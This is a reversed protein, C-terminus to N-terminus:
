VSAGLVEEAIGHLLQFLELYRGRFQSNKRWLFSFDHLIRFGALPIEQLSKRHLEERVAAEYLFTVGCGQETLAKLAAINSIEARRRFDEISLNRSELYTQLIQRSGSGPERVLLREGLLDRIDRVPQQPPFAGPAGVAVFRERRFPLSDYSTQPFSGEVIAFDLEGRDVQALLQRTDAVQMTVQADPKRRLYEALVPPMAFEGVTLTAGFRLLDKGGSLADMQERLLLLDHEMTLAAERLLKGAPTLQLKKGQYTFFRTGYEAELAKIHHSVAPQTIHLEAAARTVNQTECVTLFSKIRTDLM